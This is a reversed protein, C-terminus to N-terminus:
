AESKEIPKVLIIPTLQDDQGAPNDRIMDALDEDAVDALSPAKGLIEVNLDNADVIVAAIGLEEEIKKCVGNPDKPILVATTHYIEFASHSYFGDIGAVDQGVVEYFVGRKGALRGFVHRVCAWLILPLGKMDIALQLKYPEDMAIGHDNSTAFKSLTKAWFGVKVDKMDVTNNQCMSIVKESVTVVNGKEYLPSVYRRFLEVYDEGKQVFHTQIADRDYSKGKVERIGHNFVCIDGVKRCAVETTNNVNCDSM